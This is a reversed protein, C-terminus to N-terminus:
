FLGGQGENAAEDFGLESADLGSGGAFAQSADENGGGLREGDRIFALSRLGFSVGRNGKADYAFCNLKAQVQAGSYFLSAEDTDVVKAVGNEVVYKGLSPKQETSARFFIKGPDFGKHKSLDNADRFPWKFNGKPNGSADLCEPGFKAVLTRKAVDKMAALRKQDSSSLKKPDFIFTSSYKMVGNDDPRAKDVSIFSATVSPTTVIENLPKTQTTM